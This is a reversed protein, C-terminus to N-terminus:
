FDESPQSFSLVRFIKTYPWVHTEELPWTNHKKVYFESFYKRVFREPTKGLEFFKDAALKERNEKPNNPPETLMMKHEDPSVKLKNNFIEHELIKELMDFDVVVGNQVPETLNLYSRLKIAEDGFYNEKQDMGAM